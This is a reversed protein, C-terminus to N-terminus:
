LNREILDAIKSFSVGADNIASASREGFDNDPDIVVDSSGLGAWDSVEVALAGNNRLYSGSDWEFGAIKSHLDCLVGLCCFKDGIRLRGRGQQYEGSRLAAVWQAKIKQDM